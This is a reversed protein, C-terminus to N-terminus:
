KKLEQKVELWFMLSHKGIDTGHYKIIELIENVAVLSCHISVNRKILPMARTDWDILKYHKGILEKAKEKATM